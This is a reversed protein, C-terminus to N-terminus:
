DVGELESVAYIEILEQIITAYHHAEWEKFDSEEVNGCCHHGQEPYTILVDCEPCDMLYVMSYDERFGVFWEILDQMEGVSTRTV